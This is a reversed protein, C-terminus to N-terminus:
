KKEIGLLENTDADYIEAIKKIVNASPINTGTEYRSYGHQKMNLSQALETQTIGRKQRWQKLAQAIEMFVGKLREM